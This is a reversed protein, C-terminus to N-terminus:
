LENIKYSIQFFIFNLETFGHIKIYNQSREKEEKKKKKKEKVCYKDNNYGM